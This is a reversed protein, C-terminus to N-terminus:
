NLAWGQAQPWLATQNGGEGWAPASSASPLQSGGPCPLGVECRSTLAETGHCVPWGRAHGPTQWKTWSLTLMHGGWLQGLTVEHLSQGWHSTTEM